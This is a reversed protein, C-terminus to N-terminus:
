DIGRDIGGVDRIRLDVAVTVPLDPFLTQWDLERWRRPHRQRLHTEWRLFDVGLEDRAQTIARLAIEWLRQNAAEELMRVDDVNQPRLPCATLNSIRATGRLSYVFHPMDDEFRIRLHTRSNSVVLNALGDPYGPCASQLNYNSVHGLLWNAGETTERDLWAVFHGDDIVAAGEVLLSGNELKIRPLLVPGQQMRVNITHFELPKAFIPMEPFAQEINRLSSGTMPEFKPTLAILEAANGDVIYLRARSNLRVSRMFLDVLPDIGQKAVEESILINVLQEWMPLRDILRPLSYFATTLTEGHNQIVLKPSSGGGGDASEQAGKPHPIEVTATYPGEQAAPDYDIGISMLFARLEIDRYDWCASLLLALLVVLGACAAKRLRTM